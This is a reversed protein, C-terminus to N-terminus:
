KLPWKKLKYNFESINLWDRDDPIHAETKSIEKVEFYNKVEFGDDNYYACFEHEVNYYHINTGDTIGVYYNLTNGGDCDHVWWDDKLYELASSFDVVKTEYSEPKIDIWAISKKPWEKSSHEFYKFM